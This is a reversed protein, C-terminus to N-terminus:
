TYYVVSPSGCMLYSVFVKAEIVVRQVYSATAVKSRLSALRRPLNPRVAYKQAAARPQRTLLGGESLARKM